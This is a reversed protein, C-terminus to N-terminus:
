KCEEVRARLLLRDRDVFATRGHLLKHNNIFIIDGEDLKIEFKSDFSELFHHFYNLAWLRTPTLLEPCAKFGSVISDFRFRILPSTRLIPAYIVNTTKDVGTFAPPVRFPFIESRLIALCQEGEDTKRLAAIAKDAQMVLSHGGIKATKMAFLGFYAEPYRRFASDTHWPAAVNLESFTPERSSVLTRPTVEWILQKVDNHVTLKGLCATLALFLWDVLPRPYDLFPLHKVIVFGEQSNLYSAIKSGLDLLPPFQEAIAGELAKQIVTTSGSIKNHFDGSIEAISAIFKTPVGRFCTDIKPYNLCQM